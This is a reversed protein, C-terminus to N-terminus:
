LSHRRRRFESWCSREVGALRALSTLDMHDIRLSFSIGPRKRDNSSPIRLCSFLGLRTPSSTKCICRMSSRAGSSM